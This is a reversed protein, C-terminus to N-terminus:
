GAILGSVVTITGILAQRNARRGANWGAKNLFAGDQFYTKCVLAEGPFSWNPHLISSTEEMGTRFCTSASCQSLIESICPHFHNPTAHFLEGPRGVKKREGGGCGWSESEM